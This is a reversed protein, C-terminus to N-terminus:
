HENSKLKLQKKSASVVFINVTNQKRSEAKEAEKEKIERKREAIIPRSYGHM